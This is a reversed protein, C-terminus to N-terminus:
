QSPPEPSLDSVVRRAVDTAEELTWESGQAWARQFADDGLTNRLEETLERTRPSERVAPNFGLGTSLSASAAVFAVATTAQGARRCLQAFNPLSRVVWLPLDLSAYGNLADHLLAGGRVLDCGDMIVIVGLCESAEARELGLGHESAVDSAEEAYTRALQFQGADLELSSLSVLASAIGLGYNIERVVGLSSLLLDRARVIDGRSLLVDALNKRIIACTWRNDLEIALNLSEEFLQEARATEGLRMYENGLNNKLDMIGPVYGVREALKLSEGYYRLTAASDCRDSALMGLNNLVVAMRRPDDLARFEQLSALLSEEARETEGRHVYIKSLDHLSRGIGERDEISRSITLSERHYREAADFDSQQSAFTGAVSLGRSRTSDPPQLADLALLTEFSTRGETWENRLWFFRFLRDALRARMRTRAPLDDPRPRLGKRFNGQEAGLIPLLLAIEEGYLRDAHDTALQTIAQLHRGILADEEGAECAKESAYARVTELLWYRTTGSAGEPAADVEILSKDVLSAHLGLIDAPAIGDWGCVEEALALTWGGVFVSLRRLLIRETPGLIEYSWDVLAQLTQHHAVRKPSEAFLLRFRRDLGACIEDVSMMRTRAAALEIALPIGDLRRCIETIVAANAATLRYEADFARTRDVFLEVAASRTLPDSAADPVALPSVRYPREGEVGLHQRSTALVTVSPCEQVIRTLVRRVDNLLHECNDLVLLASRDRLSSIATEEPDRDPQEAQGLANLLTQPLRSSDGLPALEVFVVGGEFRDTVGDAFEVALRTKGCGAAGTLTVVAHDEVLSALTSLERDRGVFSTVPRPILHRASSRRRARDLRPLERAAIEAEIARRLKTMSGFRADVTPKLCDGVIAVLRDGVASADLRLDFQSTQTLREHPTSGPIAREGSVLEHLVCGFAWVDTRTDTAHGAIQEPSMYGPTGSATGVRPHDDIERAISFDVVRVSGDDTIMVNSPKLDRQVVSAAHAAEVGRAIQQAIRLAELIPPVEEALLQALTRGRVLEMTYFHSTSHASEFSYVSAVNPHDLAALTRAERAFRAFEEPGVDGSLVKLAVSRALSPDVAEYVIGTGGRGLERVVRYRGIQRPCDEHHLSQVAGRVHPEIAGDRLEARAGDVDRVWREEDLVPTGLFDLSADHSELLSRVELELDADDGCLESLAQAREAPRLAVTAHYIEEVRVLRESHSEGDPTPRGSSM